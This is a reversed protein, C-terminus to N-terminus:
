DNRPDPVSQELRPILAEVFANRVVAFLTAWFGIEPDEVSGSIPIRTAVRERDQDEFIEKVGGVLAEWTAAFFGKEDLEEPALIEVDEFFPKVYGDFRGAKAALEAYVRLTGREVDVDGYARFFPNLEELRLGVLTSNFDFTPRDAYPDFEALARLDGSQMPVARVAVRAIRTGTLDESNTLNEARVYVHDLYVDIPPKSVFRRFHVDGDHVEVRNVNIPMLEDVVERWDAELGTQSTAETRGAVLNIQPEHVDVEAVFAGELLARWDISVDVRPARFLPVPIEATRKAVEVDAVRVGGEVLSLGVDGIRAAYDPQRALVRNVFREV